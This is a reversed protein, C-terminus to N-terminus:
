DWLRSYLGPRRGRLLDNASNVHKDDALSPDIEAVIVEETDVSAQALREGTPGTIQSRGTFEVEGGSRADKGIRNALVSFVRNEICRTVTADQCYPLVLNTCHTLIQAGDLALCRTLEPYIWDFCVMPGLRGVSSGFVQPRRDGPDFWEFERDFLHIKRYCGLAEGRDFLAAANFVRGDRTREALGGVIVSGTERSLDSLFRSDAGTGFETALSRAEDRDRFLYGTSFLEPLVYLDAKIPRILDGAKELNASVRGFVPEMQVAAVRIM